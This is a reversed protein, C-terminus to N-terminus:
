TRDPPIIRRTRFLWFGSAAVLILAALTGLRTWPARTAVQSTRELESTSYGAPPASRFEVRPPGGAGAPRPEASSLDGDGRVERPPPGIEADFIMEWDGAILLDVGPNLEKVQCSCAKCLFELSRHLEGPRELDKGHLSCLARGRGFVPFAIPGRVKELGEESAILSRILVDEADERKVEVVTFEVRIPVLSKIQPGEDTRAPLEIRKAIKPLERDLMARASKDAEDNGSLVLIIASTYGVTIKNFVAQRALSVFLSAKAADLLPGSWVSAVKPSSDPYRLVVRPLQSAGPERDWIAQRNADVEKALDIPVFSVNAQRASLKLGAIAKEDAPSLPGRHYIFLDYKSPPWRELAYRFVPVSCAEAASSAFLVLTLILGFRAM